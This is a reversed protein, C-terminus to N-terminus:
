KEAKTLKPPLPPVLSHKVHNLIKANMNFSLSVFCCRSLRWCAPQSLAIVVFVVPPQDSPSGRGEGHVFQVPKLYLYIFLYPDRSAKPLSECCTGAVHRNAFGPLNLESGHLPFTLFALFAHMGQCWCLGASALWPQRYAPLRNGAM